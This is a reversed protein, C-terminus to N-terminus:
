PLFSLLWGDTKGQSSTTTGELTVDTGFAGGVVLQNNAGGAIGRGLTKGKGKVARSWRVKGSTDCGVLFTDSKMDTASYSKSGLTITGKFYGSLVPRGKSDLTVDFPNDIDPGSFPTLFQTKGSPNLKALFGDRGNASASHGDLNLTKRFTGVLYINDNTDSVVAHGYDGSASGGFKKSWLHNGNPDYKAVIGDQFGSPSLTGGGYDVSGRFNGTIVVNGKSDSTCRNMPDNSPSGFGKAWSTSGNSKLRAVYQDHYGGTSPLRKSGIRMGGVYGGCVYFGGTPDAAVKALRDGRSNGNGYTMSWKVSGSGTIRVLFVDTAGSSSYNNNGVKLGGKFEGGALIEGNSAVSLSTVVEEGWGDVVVDWAYNGTADYKAVFGDIDGGSSRAGGGFDVGSSFRGAVLVGGASTTEVAHVTVPGGSQYLKSWTKCPKAEDVEGDCDNDIGDCSSEKTEFDAGYEAAGCTPYSGSSCTVSVGSCVGKQKPCMQTLMEDVSGDCDNDKGDCKEASPTCDSGCGEDIEGDCDNDKGDCTSETGEFDTGYEAAGCTPFNGDSCRASAGACVGKQNACAKTVNEDVSGDCDNDLGDCSEGVPRTEGKCVGWSGRTCEQTGVNCEGVGATSDSGSYCEQSTGSQCSCEEDIEGDCDNDKGDCSSENTEYSSGYEDSGCAPYSGQTCSVKSEACVGESKECARTLGEDVEGDCDDDEGNCATEEGACSKNQDPQGCGGAFLVLAASAVLVRTLTRGMFM